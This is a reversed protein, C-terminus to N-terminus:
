DAMGMVFGIELYIDNERNAAVIITAGGAFLQLISNNLPTRLCYRM